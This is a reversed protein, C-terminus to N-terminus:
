HSSTSELQILVAEPDAGHRWPLVVAGLGRSVVLLAAGYSYVGEDLAFVSQRVIPAANSFRIQGGHTHGSLVVGVGRQEAEYFFDPNHALLLHPPGNDKLLADWDPKGLIRDDIGGLVFSGEGSSVRVSENCLTRIGVTTLDARIRDSERSFHDHNGFCFWAGLPARSLPALAPLFGDLDKAAGTVIDGAIAVLDPELTMLDDILTGLVEPKLFAGTHIDSVLLVRVPLLDRPWREARLSTEAVAFSRPLQWSYPSWIGAIHPYVYLSVLRDAFRESLKVLGRKPYLWRRRAGTVALPPPLQRKKFAM